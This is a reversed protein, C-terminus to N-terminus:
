KGSEQQAAYYRSMVVRLTAAEYASLERNCKRRPLTVNGRTLRTVIPRGYDYGNPDVLLGTIGRTEVTCRPDPGPTWKSVIRLEDANFGKRFQSSIWSPQEEKPGRKM